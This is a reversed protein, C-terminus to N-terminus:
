TSTMPWRRWRFRAASPATSRTATSARSPSNRATSSSTRARMEVTRFGFRDRLDDVPQDGVLLTVAANYLVPSDVNWATVGPCDIVQTVVTEGNPAVEVGSVSALAEAVEVQVGCTLSQDALSAVSMEVQVQWGDAALPVGATRIPTVHLQKVYVDGLQEATVPRTIGGYSYYDNPVHLASDEGFRNDVEVRLTHEGFPVHKAIAEFATFANYHEALLIDDLFVKARFSVGGFVFRINGKCVIKQEYVARGRYNHLAPITEWAGPVLTKMPASLGGPDLTTLTWLPSLEIQPRSQTTRFLRQM